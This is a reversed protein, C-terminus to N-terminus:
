NAAVAKKGAKKRIVEELYHIGKGKYPEPPKKSRIEAAMRVVSEKDAGSVSIQNKETKFVIGEPASIKVLNTFGLSLVLISGEMQAKYGIGELELKKEFGEAVGKLYNKFLAASTGLMAVSGGSKLSVQVSGGQLDIKVLPSFNKKLEGKPGKFIFWEGQKAVTVGAPFQIPKKALRSM